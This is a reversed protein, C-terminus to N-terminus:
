QAAAHGPKKRALKSAARFLQKKLTRQRALRRQQEQQLQRRHATVRAAMERKQQKVKHGYSTRLMKMLRAVKEEHPQRVVAVRQSQLSPRPEAPGQRPKNKYPLERQLTRPVVLPRFVKPEREVPTYLSDVAPQNHVGAERKLQGLTKMGRWADKREPPLLLSAVPTYFRPVEVQYWTRCFVIDSLLIKDEFTARFAGEPKSEAKKIQGRVGSVTRVRAGEFKAVELASSFMDKVFATKKFIKYPAGVLKLKKTVHTSKDLEVVAGTAAVRFGPQRTAIDQLALVGTGQPTIPGWFHAICAVHEPTYKLMRHRLNDELKSFVPVTQFRRWGLSVIVPDQSKLIRGYWRHKKLRVQVCGVNEEGMQLGGVILPYTPDFNAVLEYPARAIEVRVYMGPRFGELQVRLADDLGEFESRNVQSQHDVEKKLEEYFSKGGEKDDYEVDFREKLKRKKEALQERTPGAPQAPGAGEEDGKDATAAHKEGTELDEFDGFVDGEDDMRLLEAADESPGWRGTVFCDRIAERVEPQMWDRLQPQQFRSCDDADRADKRAQAERQRRSVVRFLGGVEGPGEEVGGADADGSLEGYVLKWLNQTNAQREVFADAAKRALDDKWRLSSREAAGEVGVSVSEPDSSGAEQDSGVNSDDGDDSDDAEEDGDSLQGGEGASDTDDSGVDEYEDDDSSGSDEDAPVVQAPTRGSVDGRELRSLADSVRSQILTDNDKNRISKPTSELDGKVDEAEDPSAGACPAARVVESESKLASIARALKTEVEEESSDDGSGGSGEREASVVRSKRLKKRRPEEVGRRTAPGAGPPRRRLDSADIGDSLESVADDDSSSYGSSAQDSGGVRDSGADAPGDAAEEARKRKGAVADGTFDRTSSSFLRLTSHALKVDVTEGVDLITSVLAREPRETEEPRHSHSGGLEMYVADKDYVLGGVGSFPAYVLREKEALSRRGLRDPLPCPDPLFAVDHVRLDGCGPIHVSSLKNLPVGRVYGYLCVKRDAKPNRRVEEPATVDEMRDVLLYPHASRWALPRFKIVSVFRSLNKVENRLYEGHLLGSLYFLKAGAYVETWFRHKLLKKVQRVQKAKKLVDLHTLVGMIRPMGHVQCINLFEFIEMEFGFSADILLLVLDAVKAIDIMSNIDNNCEMLTLRRKKGSVITVPGKLSTLPQKTFTKILCQILTTKGVKPPGVVAVVVPPPELPSRDVQPIHQKKTELDEKRRFRREAKVASNFTFAKPNRQKDPLKQEKAGKAKKKEAKRGSHRDRHSKKKELDNNGDM